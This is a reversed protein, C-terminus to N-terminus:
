HKYKHRSTSTTTIIFSEIEIKNSWATNKGTRARPKYFTGELLLLKEYKM